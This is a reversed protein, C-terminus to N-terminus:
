ATQAELKIKAVKEIDKVYYRSGLFFLAAGILLVFPLISLATQINSLDYIKGLVVPAMSSGLLNQVVVAIAYSSARLGPHIVDQTVASAGAIFAMIFIGFVLLTIYQVTGKFVVLAIFLIVASISTTIAPFLM